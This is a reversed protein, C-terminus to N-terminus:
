PIFYDYTHKTLALTDGLVRCTQLLVQRPEQVCGFPNSGANISRTAAMTITAAPIAM